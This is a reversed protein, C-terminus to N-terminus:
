VYINGQPPTICICYMCHECNHGLCNSNCACYYELDGTPGYGEYCSANHQCPHDNCTVTHNRGHTIPTECFHGSYNMSCTCMCNHWQEGGNMCAMPCGPYYSSSHNANSCTYGVTHMPCHCDFGWPVRICIGGNDCPNSM